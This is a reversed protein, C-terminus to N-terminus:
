GTWVLEEYKQTEAPTYYVIFPKGHRPKVIRGRARGKPVPEGPVTIFIHEPVLDVAIGPFVEEKGRGLSLPPINM